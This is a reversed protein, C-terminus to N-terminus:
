KEIGFDKIRTTNAQSINDLVSVTVTGEVSDQSVDFVKGKLLSVRHSDFGARIEVPTGHTAISDPNKPAYKGTPDSLTLSTEAVKYRNLNPYDLGSTIEGIDLVDEFINVGNLLVEIQVANGSYSLAKIEANAM